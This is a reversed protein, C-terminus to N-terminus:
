RFGQEPGELIRYVANTKLTVSAGVNCLADAPDADFANRRISYLFVDSTPDGIVVRTGSECTPPEDVALYILARSTMM